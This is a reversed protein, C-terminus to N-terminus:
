EREQDREQINECCIANNYYQHIYEYFIIVYVGILTWKFHFVVIM